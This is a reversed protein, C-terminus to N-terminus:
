GHADGTGGSARAHTLTVPSLRWWIGGERYHRRMWYLCRDAWAPRGLAEALQALKTWAIARPGHFSVQGAAQWGAALLTRWAAGPTLPRESPRPQRQWVPLYRRLSSSTIVDLTAGTAALQKLRGAVTAASAAEPEAWLMASYRRLGTSLDVARIPGWSWPAAQAVFEGADLVGTGALDLPAPCRKLLEVGHVASSVVALAPGPTRTLAAAALDFAQSYEWCARRLYLDQVTWGDTLSEESTGM